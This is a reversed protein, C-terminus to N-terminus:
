SYYENCLCRIHVMDFIDYNVMNNNDLMDSKDMYINDLIYIIDMYINYYIDNM